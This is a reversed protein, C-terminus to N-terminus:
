YGDFVGQSHRRSFTAGRGFDIHYGLTVVTESLDTQGVTMAVKTDNKFGYEAGLYAISKSGTPLGSEAHAAGFLGFGSWTEPAYALEIGFREGDFTAARDDRYAAYIEAQFPGSDYAAEVGFYAYNGPRQDEGVLFAGIAWDDSPAYYVHIGATPQTSTVQEYKGVSLDLQLGVGNAFTTGLSTAIHKFNRSKDVNRGLEFSLEGHLTNEAQAPFALVTLALAAALYPSPHTKTM